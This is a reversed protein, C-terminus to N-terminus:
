DTAHHITTHVLSINRQALYSLSELRLPQKLRREHGPSRIREYASWKSIYKCAAGSPHFVQQINILM